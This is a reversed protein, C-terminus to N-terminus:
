KWHFFGLSPAANRGAPIDFTRNGCNTVNEMNAIKSNSITNSFRGGGSRNAPTPNSHFPDLYNVNQVNKM